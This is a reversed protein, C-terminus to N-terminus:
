LCHLLATFRNNSDDAELADGFSSAAVSEARTSAAGDTTSHPYLADGLGVSGDGLVNDHIGTLQIYTYYDATVTGVAVGSCITSVLDASRDKTVNYGTADDPCLVDGDAVALDKVQVYMYVGAGAGASGAWYYLAGLTATAAVDNVTSPDYQLTGFM